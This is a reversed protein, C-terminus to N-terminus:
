DQSRRRGGGLGYGGGRGGQKSRRAPAGSGAESTVGTLVAEIPAGDTRQQMRLLLMSPDVGIWLLSGGPYLRYVRAERPGVATQLTTVTVFQVHVDKGLMPITLETTAPDLQRIEHLM